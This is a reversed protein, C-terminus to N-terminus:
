FTGEKDEESFGLTTTAMVKARKPSLDMDELDPGGVVSMVRFSARVNGRPKVFIM